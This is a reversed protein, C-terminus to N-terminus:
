INMSYKASKIHNATKWSIFGKPNINSLTKWGQDHSVIQIIKDRGKYIKRSRWMVESTMLFYSYTKSLNMNLHIRKLSLYVLRAQEGEVIKALMRKAVQKDTVNLSVSTPKADSTLKFAVQLSSGSKTKRRM